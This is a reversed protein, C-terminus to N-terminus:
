AELLLLLVPSVIKAPGNAAAGPLHIISSSIIIAIMM